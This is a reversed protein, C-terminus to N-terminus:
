ERGRRIVASTGPWRATRVVAAGTLTAAEIMPRRDPSGTRHPRRYTEREITVEPSMRKAGARVAAVVEPEAVCAIRIEQNPMRMPVALGYGQGHHETRIPVGEAPWTLAGPAFTTRDARGPTSEILIM